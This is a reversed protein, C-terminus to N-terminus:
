VLGVDITCLFLIIMGEVKCCSDEMNEVVMKVGNDMSNEEEEEKKEEEEEVVVNCCSLNCLVEEVVEVVVEEVELNYCSWVEEEQKRYSNM